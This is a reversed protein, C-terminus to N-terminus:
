PSPVLSLSVVAPAHWRVPPCPCLPVGQEYPLIRGRLLRSRHLVPSNEPRPPGRRVVAHELVEERAQAAVAFCAGTRRGPLRLMVADPHATARPLVQVLAAVAARAMTRLAGLAAAMRVDARHLLWAVALAAATHVATMATGAHHWSHGDGTAAAMHGAHAAHRPGAMSTDGDTYSLALHLVGQMALTFGITAVPAYRHRALPWVASFQVVILVAVLRWPVTGEAVAHHGFTALVTGLVAFLGARACAGAHSARGAGARVDRGTMHDPPM